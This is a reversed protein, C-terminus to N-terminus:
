YSVQCFRKVSESRLLIRWVAPLIINWVPRWQSLVQHTNENQAVNPKLVLIDVIGFLVIVTIINNIGSLMGNRNVGKQDRLFLIAFCFFLGFGYFLPLIPGTISKVVRNFDKIKEAELIYGALAILGYLTAVISFLIYAQLALPASRFRSINWNWKNTALRDNMLM